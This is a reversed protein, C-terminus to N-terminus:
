KVLLRRLEMLQDYNMFNDFANQDFQNSKSLDTRVDYSTHMNKVSITDNIRHLVNINDCRDSEDLLESYHTSYILSAGKENITKDNFLALLNQVLNKNFSKEIEDILIHGGYKFALLSTAFIFVGRFTGSSLRSRLYSYDVLLPKQNVRKFTFSIAGSDAKTTDIYEISDDFLHILANFISPGYIKKLSDIIAYLNADSTSILDASISADHINLNSLCSTDGGANPTFTNEKSFFMNSLDKKYSKKYTTKSLSENEIILFPSNVIPNKRFTGVYNYIFGSDYFMFELELVDQDILVGSPVRGHIILFLILNILHLTSSKGSSNKGIFVTELPYYFDEELEILDDNNKEKDVRTKTLFSVEFGKELMKFGSQTKFKLLKM